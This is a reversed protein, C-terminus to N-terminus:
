LKGALLSDLHFYQDDTGAAALMGQEPLDRLGLAHVLDEGGRAVRAHLLQGLQDVDLGGADDLQGIEGLLLLDVQGHDPRLLRQRQADDVLEVAAVQLDEAGGLLRGHDLGGLREGLLEHALVVDGGGVELHDMGGGFRQVIKGAGLERQHDLGVAQGGALADVDAALLFLGVLGDLLDHELPFEALRPVLHHDLFEEAALLHREHDDAVALADERQGGGHVVLLGQFAVLPRVGAAHAGDGRRRLDALLQEVLDHLGDDLRRDGPQLELVLFVLPQEVDPQHDGAVPRADQFEVGAEAVRLGLHHQHAQLAVQDVDQFPRGVLVEEVDGGVPVVVDGAADDQGGLAVRLFVALPCWCGPAPARWTAPPPSRGRRSWARPRSPRTLAPPRTSFTQALPGVRLSVM